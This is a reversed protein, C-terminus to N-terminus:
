GRGLPWARRACDSLHKLARRFIQRANESSVALDTAIEDHSAQDFYRREIATRERANLRDLCRALLDVEDPDPRETPDDAIVTATTEGGGIPRWRARARNRVNMFHGRAFGVFTAPARAGDISLVIATCTDEAVDDVVQWGLQWCEASAWARVYGQLATWAASHGPDRRLRRYIEPWDM